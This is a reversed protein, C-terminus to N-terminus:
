AGDPAPAPTTGVVARKVQTNVNQSQWGGFLGVLAATVIANSDPHGNVFAGILALGVGVIVAVTPGWRDFVDPPIVTRLVNTILAVVAAIGAASALAAATPDTLIPTGDQALALPVVWLLGIAVLLLATALSRLRM